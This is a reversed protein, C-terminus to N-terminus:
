QSGPKLSVTSCSRDDVYFTISPDVSFRDGVSFIPNQNKVLQQSEPDSLNGGGRGFFLPKRFIHSKPIEGDKSKPYFDGRGVVFRDSESTALFVITDTSLLDTM